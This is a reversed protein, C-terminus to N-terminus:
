AVVQVWAVRNLEDCLREANGRGEAAITIREGGDGEIEVNFAKSGDSIVDEVVKARIQSTYKDM